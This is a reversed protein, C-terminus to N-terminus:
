TARRLSPNVGKWLAFEGDALEQKLFDARVRGKASQAARAPSIAWADAPQEWAKTVCWHGVMVIGHGGRVWRPVVDSHNSAMSGTVKVM